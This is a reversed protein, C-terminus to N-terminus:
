PGLPQLSAEHPHLVSFKAHAGGLFVCLLYLEGEESKTCVKLGGHFPGLRLWQAHRCSQHLFITEIDPHLDMCLRERAADLRFHCVDGTVSRSQHIQMKASISLSTADHGDRNGEAVQFISDRTEVQM